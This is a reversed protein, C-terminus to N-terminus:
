GGGRRRSPFAHKLANTVLEVAVLGLPQAIDPGVLVPETPCLVLEVHPMTPPVLPRVLTEVFSGFDIPQGKELASLANHIDALSRLREGAAHLADALAPESQRKEELMLLMTAQMFNNKMRHNIEIIQLDREALLKILRANEAALARDSAVNKASKGQDWFSLFHHIIEGRHDRLPVITLSTLSRTGDRHCLPICLTEDRGAALASRFAAVIEASDIGTSLFHEDKGLVEDMAYGFVAIFATNAFIIPNGPSTADTVLMPMPTTQVADVFVGGSERLRELVSQAKNNPAAAM